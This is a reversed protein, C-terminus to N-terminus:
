RLGKHHLHVFGCACVNVRLVFLATLYKNDSVSRKRLKRVVSQGCSTSQESFYLEEIRASHIMAASTPQTLDLEAAEAGKSLSGGVSLVLAGDMWM